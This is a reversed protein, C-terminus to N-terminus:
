RAVERAALARVVDAIVKAQEDVRRREADYDRRLARSDEAGHFHRTLADLLARAADSSLSFTPEVSEAEDLEEWVHHAGALRMIQRPIGEAELVVAIRVQMGVFDDGIHVRITM